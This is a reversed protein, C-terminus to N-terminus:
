DYRKYKLSTNFRLRSIFVVDGDNAFKDNSYFLSKVEFYMLGKKEFLFKLICHREITVPEKKQTDLNAYQAVTLRIKTHKPLKKTQNGLFLSKIAKLIM